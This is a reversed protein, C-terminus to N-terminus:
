CERLQTHPLPTYPLATYAHATYSPAAYAPAKYAPAYTSVTCYSTSASATSDDDSFIHCTICDLVNDYHTICADALRACLPYIASRQVSRKKTSRYSPTVRIHNNQGQRTRTSRTNRRSNEQIPPLILGRREHSYNNSGISSSQTWEERYQSDGDRSFCISNIDVEQEWSPRRLTVTKPMAKKKSSWSSLSSSRSASVGISQEAYRAAANQRSSSSKVSLSLREAGM